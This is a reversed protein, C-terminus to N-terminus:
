KLEIAQGLLDDIVVESPGKPFSKMSRQAVAKIAKIQKDNEQNVLVNIVINFPDIAIHRKAVRQSLDYWIVTGDRLQLKLSATFAYGSYVLANQVNATEIIGSMIADASTLDALKEFNLLRIHDAKQVGVEKLARDLADTSIVSYGKMALLDNLHKRFYYAINPYMTMNQMPLVAIRFMGSESINKAFVEDVYVSREQAPNQAALLSINVISLFFFIIFYSRSLM